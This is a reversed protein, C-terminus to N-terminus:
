KDLIKWEVKRKFVLGLIAEFSILCLIICIPTLYPLYSITKIKYKVSIFYYAVFFLIATTILGSWSIYDFKLLYYLFAPWSFVSLVTFAFVIRGFFTGSFETYFGSWLRLFQNHLSKLNSPVASYVLPTHVNKIKFGMKEADSGFVMDEVISKRFLLKQFVNRKALFNQGSFYNLNFIKSLSHLFNNVFFFYHTYMKSFFSKPNLVYIDGCVIDANKSNRVLENLWNKDAVCDGDTFAVMESKTAKIANNLAYWKGKRETEQIFRIKGEKQLQKCINVTGDDGGGIVTISFKNKPYNNNLISEVCNRIRSAENWIAVLVTVQSKKGEYEHKEKSFFGFFTILLIASSFWLWLSAIFNLM